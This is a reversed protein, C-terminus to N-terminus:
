AKLSVVTSRAVLPTVDAELRSPFSFPITATMELPDSLLNINMM